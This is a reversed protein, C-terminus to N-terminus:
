VGLGLRRKFFACRAALVTQLHAHSWRMGAQKARQQVVQKCGSEIRGSGIPYGQAIATPYDMRERHWWLYKLCARAEERVEKSPGTRILRGVRAVNPSPRAGGVRRASADAM